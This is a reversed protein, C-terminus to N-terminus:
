STCEKSGPSWTVSHPTRLEADVLLQGAMGVGIDAQVRQGVRQEGGAAGAVDARM